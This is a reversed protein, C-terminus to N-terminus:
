YFLGTGLTSSGGECRHAKMTAWLGEGPSQTGLLREWGWRVPGTGSVASKESKWFTQIKRLESGELFVGRLLLFRELGEM